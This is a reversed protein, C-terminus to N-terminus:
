LLTVTKEQLTIQFEIIIQQNITQYPINESDTVPTFLADQNTPILFSLLM